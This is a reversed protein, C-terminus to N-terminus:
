QEDMHPEEYYNEEESISLGYIPNDLDMEGDVNEGGRAGPFGSIDYVPNNLTTNSDPSYM